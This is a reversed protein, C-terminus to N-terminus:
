NRKIPEHFNVDTSIIRKNQFDEYLEVGKASLELMKISDKEDVKM